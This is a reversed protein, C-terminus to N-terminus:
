YRMGQWLALNRVLVQTDVSEATLIVRWNRNTV